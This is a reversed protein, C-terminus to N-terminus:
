GLRAARGGGVWWHRRERIRQHGEAWDLIHRGYLFALTDNIIFM